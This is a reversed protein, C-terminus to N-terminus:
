PPEVRQKVLFGNKNVSGGQSSLKASLQPHDTAGDVALEVYQV